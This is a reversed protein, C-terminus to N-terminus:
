APRSPKAGRAAAPEQQRASRKQRLRQEQALDLRLQRQQEQALELRLQRQREHDQERIRLADQRQAARDLAVGRQRARAEDFARQEALSAQMRQRAAERQKDFERPSLAQPGVRPLDREDQEVNRRQREARFERLMERRAQWGAELVRRRFADLLAERRERAWRERLRQEDAANQLLQAKLQERRQQLRSAIRRQEIARQAQMRLLEDRQRLRREEIRSEKTHVKVPFMRQLRADEPDPEAGGALQKLEKELRERQASLARLDAPLEFGAPLGAPVVLGGISTAAAQAPVDLEAPDEELLQEWSLYPDGPTPERTNPM